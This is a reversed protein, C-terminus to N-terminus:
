PDHRPIPCGARHVAARGAASRRSSSITRRHRTGRRGATCARALDTRTGAAAFRHKLSSKVRNSTYCLAAVDHTCADLAHALTAANRRLAGSLARVGHDRRGAGRGNGRCRCSCSPQGAHCPRQQRRSRLLQRRSFRSRVSRFRAPPWNCVRSNWAYRRTPDSGRGDSSPRRAPCPQNILAAIGAAGELHRHQGQHLRAPATPRTPATRLDGLANAEIMDGLVTGTGHAEVFTVDRAAAGAISRASCSPSRGVTPLLSATARATRTPASGTIIAYVPQRDAVADTLRRLVM